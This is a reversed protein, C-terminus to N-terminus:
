SEPRWRPFFFIAASFGETVFDCACLKADRSQSFSQKADRHALNRSEGYCGDTGFRILHRANASDELTWGEFEGVHLIVTPRRGIAFAEAWV